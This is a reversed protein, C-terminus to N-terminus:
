YVLQKSHPLLNLELYVINTVTSNVHFYIQIDYKGLLGVKNNYKEMPEILLRCVLSILGRVM